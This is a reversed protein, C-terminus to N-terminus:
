RGDHNIQYIEVTNHRDIKCKIWDIEATTFNYNCLDIYISDVFNFNALSLRTFKALGITSAINFVVKIPAFM